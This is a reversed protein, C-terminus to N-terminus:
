AFFCHGVPRCQKVDKRIALAFSSIAILATLFYFRGVGNWLVGSLIGFFPEM